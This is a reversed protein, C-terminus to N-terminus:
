SASRKLYKPRGFLMRGIIRYKASKLEAFFQAPHSDYKAVDKSSGIARVVPRVPQRFVKRWGMPAVIVKSKGPKKKGTSSGSTVKEIKKSASTPPYLIAEGQAWNSKIPSKHDAKLIIKDAGGGYNDEFILGVMLRADQVTPNRFYESLTRLSKMPEFDFTFQIDGFVSCFRHVFALGGQHVQRSFVKRHSEGATEPQFIPVFRNGSIRAIRKLSAEDNSFFSEYLPVHRCFTLHTDHRDIFDGFFGSTPLGKKECREIAPRFTVLYYGSIPNKRDTLEYLSEQMTGAYGIDVIAKPKTDLFGVSDLYAIYDEREMEANSLILAELEKLVPMLINRTENNVSEYRLKEYVPFVGALQINVPSIGFRVELLREVTMKGFDVMSLDIIDEFTKLKAVNASRRSCYLYVSKPAEPVHRAVIDYAQKMILGDRSLFFLTKIGDNLSRKLLWHSYALLLPGFASFGLDYRGGPFLCNKEVNEDDYCENAIVALMARLSLSHRAEDKAWVQSYHLSKKFTEWPRNLHAAKIGADQPRKLDGIENDGIHLMNEVPKSLAAKYVDFLAGSQKKANHSSSLFLSKYGTIGNSRLVSSLTDESLYMDSILHVDKGISVFDHYIDVICKRPYLLRTELRVEEQLIRMSVDPSVGLSLEVEKYIDSIHIEQRGETIAIQFARKEAARRVDVFNVHRKGTAEEVFDNMIRFLDAPEALPRVLLTDFIDFSIIQRREAIDRIVNFPSKEVLPDRKSGKKTSEQRIGSLLDSVAENINPVSGFKSDSEAVELIRQIFRMPDTKILSTALAYKSICFALAADRDIDTRSHVQDVFETVATATSVLDLHSRGLTLLPKKWLAAQFGVSSSAVIVGDSLPVICQSVNEYGNIDNDFIFNSYNERLYNVAADTMSDTAVSRSKYLTAIIGFDSPVSSLVHELAGLQSGYESIVEDVMFYNDVQLPYLLLHKYKQRLANVRRSVGTKVLSGRLLQRRVEDFNAETSKTPRYLCDKLLRPLFLTYDPFPARSFPGPLEYVIKANPFINRLYDAASEWVVILEPLFDNPVAATIIDKLIGHQEETFSNQLSKAALERYSPSIASLQADKITGYDGLKGELGDVQLRSLLHAGFVLFTRHGCIRAAEIQPIISNRITPLRFYPDNREIKPEVYFLIDM